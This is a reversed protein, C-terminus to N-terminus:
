QSPKESLVLIGTLVDIARQLQADVFPKQEKDKSQNTDKSPLAPLDDDFEDAGEPPTEKKEPETKPTEAPPENKEPPTDKQEPPVEKPLERPPEKGNPTQRLIHEQGWAELMKIEEERSLPVYIDPEIGWTKSNRDDPFRHILRGSPTYYLATTLKLLAGDDGIPIVTQVSGKGFSREGIIVARHHDKLAGAVIESASASRRSILVAMPFDGYPEYKGAKFVATTNPARGKTSVVVSGEKLFRSSVDISTELLGGPNYRLDLVLAQLGQKQLSRVAEDLEELSRKQFQALRIYGIKPKTCVMKVSTVSKIRIIDREITIDTTQKEGEHLVTITVKTGKPGRLKTVAETLSIGETSKGEIKLIRDGARVGAKFAPSGELPTIVTLIRQEDLTIEIGLGGFEGSTDIELEKALVPPLYQSFPDLDQVMGKAAGEFLAKTDPEKVYNRRIQQVITALREYEDYFNEDKKSTAALTLTILAVGILVMTVLVRRPM